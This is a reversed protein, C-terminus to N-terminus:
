RERERGDVHDTGTLGRAALLMVPLLVTIAVGIVIATLVLAQPVPGNYQALSGVERRGLIADAGTRLRGTSPTFLDVAYTPNGRKGRFLLLDGSFRGGRLVTQVEAALRRRMEAAGLVLHGRMGAQLALILRGAGGGAAGAGLLIAQSVRLM